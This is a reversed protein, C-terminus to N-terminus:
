PVSQNAQQSKECPACMRERYIYIYMYMTIHKNIAFSVFAGFIFLLNFIHNQFTFLALGMYCFIVNEALFNMFEFLKFSLSLVYNHSLDTVAKIM